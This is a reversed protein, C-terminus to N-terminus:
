QKTDLWAASLVELRLYFQQPILSISQDIILNSGPGLVVCDVLLIGVIELMSM